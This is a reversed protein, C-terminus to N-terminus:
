RKFFYWRGFLSSFRGVRVLFRVSERLILIGGWGWFFMRGEKDVGLFDVRWLCLCGRSM